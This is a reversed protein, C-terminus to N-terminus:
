SDLMLTTLNLSTQLNENFFPEMLDKRGNGLCTVVAASCETICM